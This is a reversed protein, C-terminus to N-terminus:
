CRTTARWDLPHMAARLVVALLSFLPYRHGCRRCPDPITTLAQIVNMTTDRGRTAAFRHEHYWFIFVRFLELPFPAHIPVPKLETSCHIKRQRFRPKVLRAAASHPVNSQAKQRDKPPEASIGSSRRM